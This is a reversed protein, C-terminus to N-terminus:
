AGDFARAGWGRRAREPHRAGGPQRRLLDPIIQDTGDDRWTCFYYKM